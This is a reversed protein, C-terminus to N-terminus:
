APRKRVLITDFHTLVEVGDQNVLSFRLKVIGRDPKSGSERREVWERTLTLLDGPRVPARFRVEDYGLSAIVAHREPLAHVLRQKLALMLVGPATLSGFAAKGAAEDVHFPLPDWRRSFEVLEDRDVSLPPSSVREGPVMDEFFRLPRSASSDTPM